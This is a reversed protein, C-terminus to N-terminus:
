RNWHLYREKDFPDKSYALGTQSLSKIERAWYKIKEATDM